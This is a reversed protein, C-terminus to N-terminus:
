TAGEMKGIMNIWLIMKNASKAKECAVNLDTNWEIGTAVQQIKNKAVYGPVLEEGCFGPAMGLTLAALSLVLGHKIRNTASKM